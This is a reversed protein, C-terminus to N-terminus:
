VTVFGDTWHDSDLQYESIHFGAECGSDDDSIRPDNVFGPQTRLRNAAMAAAARSRYVGILKVDDSGPEFVHVHHLLFVSDMVRQVEISDRRTCAAAVPNGAPRWDLAIGM